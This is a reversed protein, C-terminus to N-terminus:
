KAKAWCEIPIETNDNKIQMCIEKSPMQVTIAPIAECKVPCSATKIVVVLFWVLANDM